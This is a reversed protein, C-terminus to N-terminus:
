ASSPSLSSFPATLDDGEPKCQLEADTGRQQSVLVSCGAGLAVDCPSSDPTARKSLCHFHCLISKRGEAGTKRLNERWKKGVVRCREELALEELTHTRESGVVRERKGQSEKLGM